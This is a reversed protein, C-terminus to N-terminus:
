RWNSGWRALDGYQQPTPAARLLTPSSALGSLPATKNGFQLPVKDEAGLWSASWQPGSDLMHVWPDEICFLKTRPFVAAASRRNPSLTALPGSPPSKPEM